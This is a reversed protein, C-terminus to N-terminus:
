DCLLQLFITLISLMEELSNLGVCVKSNNTPYQCSKSMAHGWCIGIFSTSLGLVERSVVCTLISTMNFINGGENEIYAIVYVKLGHKALLDNVQLVLANGFTYVVEFFDL